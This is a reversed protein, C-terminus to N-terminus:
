LTKSGEKWVCALDVLLRGVVDDLLDVGTLDVDTLAASSKGLKRPGLRIKDDKGRKRREEEKEYCRLLSYCQQM